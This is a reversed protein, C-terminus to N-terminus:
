IAEFKKFAEYDYSESGFAEWSYTAPFSGKVSKDVINYNVGGEVNDPTVKIFVHKPMGLPWRYGCKRVEKMFVHEDHHGKSMVIYSDSGVNEVELNYKKSTM